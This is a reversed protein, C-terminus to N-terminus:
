FCLMSDGKVAAEIALKRLSWGSSTPPVVEASSLVITQMLSAM